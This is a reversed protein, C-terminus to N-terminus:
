LWPGYEHETGARNSNVRRRAGCKTCAEVYTIGGHAFVNQKDPEIVVPGNYGFVEGREFHEHQCDKKSHDKM